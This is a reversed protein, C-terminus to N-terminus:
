PAPGRLPQALDPDFGPSTHYDAKLSSYDWRFTKEEWEAPPSRTLHSIDSMPALCNFLTNYFVSPNQQQM